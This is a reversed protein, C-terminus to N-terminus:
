KRILNLFVYKRLRNPMLLQIIIRIIVNYIFRTITIIKNTLLLKQIGIESKFYKWGARRLFMKDDIRVKVLTEKLNSFTINKLSMRIWLYYDENCYWDKYGGADIVKNKYFMVTMQNFPCRSKLYKKIKDDTIPVERKSVINDINDIFEEIQGGVLSVEPNKLLFEYQLEFRNHVSIDDSDMLAVIENTCKSLGIRRANGHGQNQKLEIVKLFSYNLKFDSIIKRTKIPIPGDIVLVIESPVLTQNIISLFAKQFYGSNDNQYVSLSVSFSNNM